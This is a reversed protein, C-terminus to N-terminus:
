DRALPLNDRQWASIGGRLNRVSEFGHKQLRACASASRQGTRCYVIVPRKKYKELKKIQDDLNSLPIHVSNVIHGGEHEKPERVDVVVAKDHNIMRVAEGPGIQGYGSGRRRIENVALLILLAIFTGWLYPHNTVFETFQEM